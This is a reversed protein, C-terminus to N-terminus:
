DEDKKTIEALYIQIIQNPSKGDFDEENQSDVWRVVDRLLGLGGNTNADDGYPFTERWNIKTM